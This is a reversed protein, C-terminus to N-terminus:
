FLHKAMHSVQIDFKQYFYLFIWKIMIGSDDRNHPSTNYKHNEVEINAVSSWVMRSCDAGLIKEVGVVVTNNMTGPRQSQVIVVNRNVSRSIQKSLAYMVFEM